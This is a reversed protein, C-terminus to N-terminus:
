EGRHSPEAAYYAAGILGTQANTAIKLPIKRLMDSFRGKRCFNAMFQQQDIAPLIKPAIGGGLYVGGLALSKLALNGAEAAYIELFLRLTEICLADQKQLACASIAAARDSGAPLADLDIAARAFGSDRLFDYLHEIGSGCVIREVSVHEPYRQRLWLLLADQQANVPAFDCHGGETAVPHFHEGDNLLLAEGLGTGAAIVARNASPPMAGSNLEVFDAAPLHLMGFAMAALDNILRTDPTSLHASLQQQSIEWALNTTRCHGDIVAGAVGFCAASIAQHPRNQLFADIVAPLNSYRRSAFQQQQTMRLQGGQQEFLALWTKTGGIDGALIM